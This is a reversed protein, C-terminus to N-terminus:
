LFFTFVLMYLQLLQNSTVSTAFVFSQVLYYLLTLEDRSPWLVSGYCLSWLVTSFIYLILPVLMAMCTYESVNFSTDGDVRRQALMKRRWIIFSFLLIILGITALYYMADHFVSPWNYVVAVATLIQPVLILMMSIFFCIPLLGASKSQM